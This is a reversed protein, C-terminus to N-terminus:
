QMKCGVGICLLVYVVYYVVMFDVHMAVSAMMPEVVVGLVRAMISTAASPWVGTMESAEDARMMSGM